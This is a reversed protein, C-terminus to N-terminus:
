PSTLDIVDYTGSERHKRKAPTVAVSPGPRTANTAVTSSTPVLLNASPSINIMRNATVASPTASTSAQLMHSSTVQSPLVTKSATSPAPPVASILRAVDAPTPLSGTNIKGLAPDQELLALVSPYANRFILRLEAEPAINKFATLGNKREVNWEGLKYLTEKKHVKSVVEAV